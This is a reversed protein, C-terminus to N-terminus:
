EARLLVMTPVWGAGEGGARARGQGESYRASYVRRVPIAARDLLRVQKSQRSAVTTREPVRYLKLDGLQELSVRSGTVTVEAVAADETAIARRFARASMPAAGRAILFGVADSTSGRPWCRALIAGGRELPTDQSSERNLRGAVVQTRAAPFSIGNGNALTVWAGLDMTKGDGSLTATYDAAWDFGYALYSLEIRATLPAATRVLVSLTPSAALSTDGGFEFGEALGSCRLAEIGDQTQFVVGDARAGSLITGTVGHTRGTRPDTRILTLARGAAGAILTAPSLLQADLNKEVLGNPLGALIASVPEIGDAM